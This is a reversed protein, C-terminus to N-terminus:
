AWPDVMVKCQPAGDLLGEVARTLGELPVTDTVMCRPELHGAALTAIVEEYDQRDYTMSFQLLIEKM